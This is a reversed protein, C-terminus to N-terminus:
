GEIPSFFIIDCSIYDEDSDLVKRQLAKLDLKSLKRAVANDTTFCKVSESGDSKTCLCVVYYKYATADLTADLVTTNKYEKKIDRLVEQIEGTADCLQYTKEEISKAKDNCDSLKIFGKDQYDSIVRTRHIFSAFLFITIAQLILIALTCFVMLVVNDFVNM